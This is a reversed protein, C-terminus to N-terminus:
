RVAATFPVLLAAELRLEEGHLMYLYVSTYPPGAARIRDAAFRLLEARGADRCFLGRLGAVIPQPDLVAAM